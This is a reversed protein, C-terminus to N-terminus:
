KKFSLRVSSGSPVVIKEKLKYKDTIEDPTEINAEIERETPNNAEIIIENKDWKVINL